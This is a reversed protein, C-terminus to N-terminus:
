FSPITAISYLMKHLRDQIQKFDKNRLRLEFHLLRKPSIVRIQELLICHKRNRYEIEYYQEGTKMKSSIPLVWLLNQNIDKLILVPRDHLENKGDIEHGINVGIAAWWIEGELFFFDAPLLRNDLNKKQKNWTDYDKAIDDM